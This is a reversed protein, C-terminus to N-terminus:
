SERLTIQCEDEVGRPYQGLHFQQWRQKQVEEWEKEINKMQQSIQPCQVLLIRKPGSLITGSAVM